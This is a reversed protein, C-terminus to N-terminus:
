GGTRTTPMGEGWKEINKSKVQEWQAKQADNLIADLDATVKELTEIRRQIAGSLHKTFIKRLKEKQETSMDLYGAYRDTLKDRIELFSKPEKRLNFLKMVKQELDFIVTLGGGALLGSAFIVALLLCSACCSRTPPALQPGSSESTQNGTM